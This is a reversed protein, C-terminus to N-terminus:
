KTAVFTARLPAPYGEITKAPDEPDLFSNLSQYTMWETARQEETTTRNLDVLKIDKFGARKLWLALTDCSPIFWVNRMMAYRDEPMLCQENDGEIVLTELVLEGGKRLTSKLELLHDIPSRRHYLVGMSFTTDFAELNSPVEEMKVPLLHIPSKPGCYKKIAEFQTLFLYNPDIGIVRDAGEGLMRWCHYGSGCGVDLVVRNKLSSIHPVVRDWKWDSHWETNIYTDFLQFPGKRWPSLAMLGSTLQVLEAESLAEAKNATIASTTLTINDAQIDPLRNLAAQWRGLDGHPNELLRQELQPILNDLWRNLPGQKMYQFLDQYIKFFDM